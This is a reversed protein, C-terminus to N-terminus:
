DRSILFPRVVRQGSSDTYHLYYMGSSFLGLHLDTTKAGNVHSKLVLRGDATYVALDGADPLQVHLIDRVPNPYLGLLKEPANVISQTSLIEFSTDIFCGRADEIHIFYTGGELSEASATNSVSPDWQFVYPSTGGSLNIEISGNDFGPAVAPELAYTFEMGMRADKAEEFLTYAALLCFQVCGSHTFPGFDFFQVDQAGNSLFRDYAKESNQYNVQDDGNCYMLRVPATPTWDYVDNQALALRLVNDPNTQFDALQSPVLVQNPISPVQSNIYGMSYTGDFLPPLDVDYPSVFLESIDTYFNGYVSQYAFVVYPLYGPTPYPEMGTIVDAQVGSLDYPGSMPASITVQFEDPYNTEIEKHLAMTAHGGQSYGFLFLQDNLNFTLSDQLVRAARMLDLAADAESRAHVYPHLGPSTGLGIYDPMCTVYGCGAFIKGINAEYNNFSPVDIKEAITGHQYSALPLPCSIGRPIAIAGSAEIPSDDAPHRTIYRVSYFDVAYRITIYGSPVGFDALVQNMQPITISDTKVFEIIQANLTNLFFGLILVFYLKKM